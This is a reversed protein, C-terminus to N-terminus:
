SLCTVSRIASAEVIPVCALPVRRGQALDAVLATQNNDTNIRIAALGAIAVLSREYPGRM